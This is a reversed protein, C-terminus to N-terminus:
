PPTFGIVDTAHAREELIGMRPSYPPFSIPGIRIEFIEPLSDQGAVRVPRQRLSGLVFTIKGSLQAPLATALSKWRPEAASGRLSETSRARALSVPLFAMPLLKRQRGNSHISGMKASLPSFRPASLGRAAAGSVAKSPAPAPPREALFGATDPQLRIAVESKPAATLLRRGALPDLLSKGPLGAGGPFPAPSAALFDATKPKPGSTAALSDGLVPSDAWVRRVGTSRDPDSVAGTEPLFDPIFGAREPQGKEREKVPPAVPPVARPAVPRAVPLAAAPEPKDNEAKDPRLKGRPGPQSALLRELALQNHEKQYIKRHEKSCFESDGTLRKLLALPRDCYLCRMQSM